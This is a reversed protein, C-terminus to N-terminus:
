LNVVVDHLHGHYSHVATHALFSKFAAHYQLHMIFQVEADQGFLAVLELCQYYLLHLLCCLEGYGENGICPPAVVPEFRM